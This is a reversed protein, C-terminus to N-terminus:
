CSNFNVENEGTFSSALFQEEKITTNEATKNEEEDLCTKVMRINEYFDSLATKVSFNTEEAGPNTEENEVEEAKKVDM